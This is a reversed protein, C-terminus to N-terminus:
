TRTRPKSPWPKTSATTTPKKATAKKATSNTASAKKKSPAHEGRTPKTGRASRLEDTSADPRRTTPSSTRAARPKAVDAKAKPSAKAAKAAARAMSDLRRDVTRRVEAHVVSTELIQRVDARREFARLRLLTSSGVDLFSYPERRMQAVVLDAAERAHPTRAFQALLRVLQFRFDHGSGGDVLLTRVLVFYKEDIEFDALNCAIDSAQRDSLNGAQLARFGAEVASKAPWRDAFLALDLQAFADHSRYRGLLPAVVEQMAAIEDPDGRELIDLPMGRLGAACLRRALDDLEQQENM